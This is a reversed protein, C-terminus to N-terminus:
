RQRPADVGGAAVRDLDAQDAAASPAASRGGVGHVGAFVDPQDCHGVDEGIMELVAAPQKLLRIGLLHGDVVIMTEDAEVGVLLQDLAAHVHHQDGAGRVEVGHHELRGYVGALVDEALLRVADVHGAHLQRHGGGLLGSLLVQAENGAETPAVIRADALGDLPDLVPRDALDDGDFHGVKASRVDEAEALRAPVFHPVLELVPVVEVPKRAVVGRLRQDM